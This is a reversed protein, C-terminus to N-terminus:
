SARRETDAKEPLEVVHSHRAEREDRSEALIPDSM